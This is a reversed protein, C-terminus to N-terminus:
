AYDLVEESIGNYVRYDKDRNYFSDIVSGDSLEIYEQTLEGEPVDYFDGIDSVENSVADYVCEREHNIYDDFVSIYTAIM